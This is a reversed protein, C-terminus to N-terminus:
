LGGSLWIARLKQCINVEKWKGSVGYLCVYGHVCKSVCLLQYACWRAQTSATLPEYFRDEGIWHSLAGHSAPRTFLLGVWEQKQMCVFVQACMARGRGHEGILFTPTYSTLHVPPSLILRHVQGPKTFKKRFAAKVSKRQPYLCRSISKQQSVLQGSPWKERVHAAKYFAYTSSKDDACHIGWFLPIQTTRCSIKM